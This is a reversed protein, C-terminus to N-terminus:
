GRGGRLIAGRAPYAASAPLPAMLSPKLRGNTPFSRTTGALLSAEVSSEETAGAVGASFAEM